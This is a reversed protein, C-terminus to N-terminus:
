MATPMGRMANKAATGPGTGVILRCVTAGARMLLPIATTKGTTANRRGRSSGTGAFPRDGATQTMTTTPKETAPTTGADQNITWSLNDTGTGGGMIEWQSDGIDWHYWVGTTWDCYLGGDTSCAVGPAGSGMGFGVEKTANTNNMRFYPQASTPTASRIIDINASPTWRLAINGTGTATPDGIM